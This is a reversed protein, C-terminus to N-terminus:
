MEDFLICLVEIAQAARIPDRLGDASFDEEWISLAYRLYQERSEALVSEGLEASLSPWFLRLRDLSGPRGNIADFVVDDLEELKELIEPSEPDICESPLSITRVPVATAPGRNEFVHHAAHGRRLEGAQHLSSADFDELWQLGLAPLEDPSVEARDAAFQAALFATGHSALVRHILRAWDDLPAGAHPQPDALDLLTVGSQHALWRRAAEDQPLPVLRFPRRSSYKLGTTFSWRTRCEPPMCTIAAAILQEAPANGQLALCSSHLASHVLVALRAPGVEAGLWALLDEDVVAAAGTLDLPELASPIEPSTPLAGRSVAARVLAFPDNAFRRLVDPPAILCDTRVRRGGHGGYEWGAPTTRSICFAGSPLPHFNLSMADPGDDLLSDHSPGWLALVLRDNDTLGPSSAVLQYQASGGTPSSTFIAQEIKM